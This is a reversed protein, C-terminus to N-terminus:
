RFSPMVKDSFLELQKNLGEITHYIFKFEFHECGTNVYAEVRNHVEDASGVIIAKKLDELRDIPYGQIISEVTKGSVRWADESKKDICAFIEIAWKINKPNRGFEEAKKIIWEKRARYEEHSQVPPIWGDALEATLTLSKERFGGLWLAPYPKQVPKPFMEAETFDVYKGHYTALDQTWLVKMAEVYEKLRSYKESRSIAMNEFDQNKTKDKIGGPGIGLILRGGSLLDLNAAQKAAIIPNRIPVILVAIGLKVNKTIAAVYSLTSLSEYM